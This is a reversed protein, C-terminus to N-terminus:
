DWEGLLLKQPSGTTDRVYRAFETARALADVYEQSHQYFNVSVQEAPQGSRHSRGILQEFTGTDSPLQVIHNRNFSQLNRGTGHAAISAVITRNGLERAIGTAANDGPGYQPFKGIDAIAHGVAANSYWIIGPAEHGWAAADEMLWHSIWKVATVPLVKDQIEAWPAWCDSRWTPLAGKYGEGGRIAADRVLKPSDMHEKRHKLTERLERNWEQRLNFWTDILGGVEFDIEAAHPYRWFLYFGAAVQKAVAAVEMADVLEEGDPRQEKARVNDLAERVEAPMTPPKRVAFKLPTGIGVDTTTIVGATEVLRRHFGKRVNENPGCLAKLKGGDGQYFENPILEDAWEEVVGPSLPLPSGEGLAIASFHSYDGPRKTTISGSHAFLRIRKDSEAFLKLFRHTRSSGRDRLAQAEDSIIVSLEPRSKFWASNKPLSLESYALIELKPRGPHFPGPGAVLNPTLFHQSWCLYDHRIQARLGPPLLLVALTCGPVVMPVLIDLASKGSGVPLLGLIGGVSAAEALYWGQIPRLETLCPNQGRKVVEPRLKACACGGDQGPGPRDRKLRTTMTRAMAAMEEESPLPRRPLALIRELDDMDEPDASLPKVVSPRHKAPFPKGQVPENAIARMKDLLSSM